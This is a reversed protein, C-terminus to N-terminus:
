EFSNPGGYAGIDNVSGDRDNRSADPDGLDRLRNSSSLAFDDDTRNTNDQWAVFAPSIALNSPDSATVNVFTTGNGFFDDYTISWTSSSTDVDYLGYTNGAVIVGTLRVDSGSNVLGYDNSAIVGNLIQLRGYATYLGGYAYDSSEANLIFADLDVTGGYQYFTSQQGENSSVELRTGTLTDFQSAFIAGGWAASNDSIRVDELTVSGGTIWLGGGQSEHYELTTDSTWGYYYDPLRNEEIVVDRLTPAADYVYVGGGYWIYYYEYIWNYGDYYSYSSSTSVGSGETLTFGHLVSDSTEGSAFTVVPGSGVGRVTTQASGGTGLVSVAKGRFDLEEDYTGPEVLVCLEAADIAAQIDRLPEANTGPNRSSGSTSVWKPEAEDLDDCDLANDAGDDPLFCAYVLEDPSGAGDGDQDAPFPVWTAPDEDAEGDCDNDVRDCPEDAGPFVSFDDDDCDDGNPVFGDSADCDEYHGGSEDGFGDGDKDAYWSVDPDEDVRGDCDDDLGNCVDAAVGPNVSARNDDCDRGDAYGDADKDGGATPTGTDGATDVAASDGTSDDTGSCGTLLVLAVVLRM